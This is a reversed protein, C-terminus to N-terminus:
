EHLNGDPGTFFFGLKAAQVFYVHIVFCTMSIVEWANVIWEHKEKTNIAISIPDSRLNVM